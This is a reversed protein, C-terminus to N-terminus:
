KQGIQKRIEKEILEQVLNRAQKGEAIVVGKENYIKFGPLSNLRYQAVLPSEWDIGPAGQRNVDYSRVVVDPRTELARELLPRIEQCAGCGPSTFDIITYKGYVISRSVDAEQGPNDVNVDEFVKLNKDRTSSLQKDMNKGCSSVAFCALFIMLCNALVRFRVIGGHLKQTKSM